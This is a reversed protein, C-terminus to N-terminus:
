PAVSDGPGLTEDSPTAAEVSWSATLAAADVGPRDRDGSLWLTYRFETAPAVVALPAVYLLGSGAIARAFRGRAGLRGAAIVIALAVVGWLWTRYLATRTLALLGRRVANTAASPEFHIPLAGRCRGMERSVLPDEAFLPGSPVGEFGLQRLLVRGRHRAYHLPHAAVTGMWDRLLRRAQDADIPWITYRDGFYILRAM